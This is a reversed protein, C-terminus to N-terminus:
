HLSAAPLLLEVNFGDPTPPHTRFSSGGAGLWVGLGCVCRGKPCRSVELQEAHPPLATLLCSGMGVDYRLIAAVAAAVASGGEAASAAEWAGGLSEPSPASLLALRVLRLALGALRWRESRLAYRWQRHEALVRHLVWVVLM